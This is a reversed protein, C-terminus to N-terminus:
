IQTLASSAACCWKFIEGDSLSASPSPGGPRKRNKKRKRKKAKRFTFVQCFHVAPQPIMPFCVFAVQLTSEPEAAGLKQRKIAAYLARHCMKEWKLTVLIVFSTQSVKCSPLAEGTHCQMCARASESRFNEMLLLASISKIQICNKKKKKKCSRQTM